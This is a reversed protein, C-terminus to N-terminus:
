KAICTVKKKKNRRKAIEFARRIIRESAFRTIVRTDIATSRPNGTVGGAGCYLGETNERLFVVDVKGAEWVQIHKGHIRQQVGPLLKVPRINSYLDLRSRNGIVPSWGAMKGNEMTVPGRGSPSPWG